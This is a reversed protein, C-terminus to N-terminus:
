VQNHKDITLKGLLYPYKYEKIDLKSTNPKPMLTDLNM